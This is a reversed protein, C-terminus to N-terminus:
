RGVLILSAASPDTGSLRCAIVEQLAARMSILIAEDSPTRDNGVNPPRSARIEILKLSAIQHRHILGDVMAFKCELEDVRMTSLVLKKETIELKETATALDSELSVFDDLDGANRPSRTASQRETVATM